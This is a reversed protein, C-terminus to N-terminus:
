VGTVGCSQVFVCRGVVFEVCVRARRFVYVCGDLCEGCTFDVTCTERNRVGCGGAPASCNAGNMISSSTVMAEFLGEVDGTEFAAAFLGATANALDAVSVSHDPAVVVTDHARAAAALQDSVYAVGTVESANGGGRPLLASAYSDSPTDSLLQYEIGADDGVIAYFWSAGRDTYRCM